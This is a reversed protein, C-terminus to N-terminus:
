EELPYWHRFVLGSRRSLVRRCLSSNQAPSPCAVLTLFVCSGRCCEGFPELYWVNKKKKLSRNTLCCFSIIARKSRWGALLLVEQLRKFHAESMLQLLHCKSCGKERAQRFREVAEAVRQEVTRGGGPRQEEEEDEEEAEEQARLAHRLPNERSPAYGMCLVDELPWGSRPPAASPGAQPAEEEEEM